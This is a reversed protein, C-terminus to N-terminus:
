AGANVTAWSVTLEGLRWRKASDVPRVHPHRALLRIAAIWRQRAGFVAHPAAAAWARDWDELFNHIPEGPVNHHILAKPLREAFQSPKELTAPNCAFTITAPVATQKTAPIAVWTALRGIEDCTGEIFVGNPQLRRAILNWANQVEDESYQRLVNFARVVLPDADIPIEFGGLRFSVGLKEDAKASTVREPDIEIGVMEVDTRIECLRDFWELTTVTDKGYGLDVFLSHEATRILHGYTHNLWRDARRLRNPNTTGRTIQGLRKPM